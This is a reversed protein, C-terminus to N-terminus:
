FKLIATELRENRKLAKEFRKTFTRIFLGYTDCKIEMIIEPYKKNARFEMQASEAFRVEVGLMMIFYMQFHLRIQRWRYCFPM